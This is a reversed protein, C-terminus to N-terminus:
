TRTRSSGARPARTPPDGGPYTSVELSFGPRLFPRLLEAEVNFTCTYTHHMAGIDLITRSTRPLTSVPLPGVARALARILAELDTSERFDGVTLNWCSEKTKRRSGPKIPEGKTWGFDPELGLRRTLASLSLTASLVRFVVIYSHAPRKPVRAASASRRSKSASAHRAGAAPRVEAGKARKKATM